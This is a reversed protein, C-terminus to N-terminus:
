KHINGDCGREALTSARDHEPKAQPVIPVTDNESFSKEVRKAIVDRIKAAVDPREITFPLLLANSPHQL